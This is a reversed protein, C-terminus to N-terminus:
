QDCGGASRQKQASLVEAPTLEGSPVLSAFEAALALIRERQKDNREQEESLQSMKEKDPQKTRLGAGKKIETVNVTRSTGLEPETSRGSQM